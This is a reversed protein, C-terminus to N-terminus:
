SCGFDAGRSVEEWEAWEELRRRYAEPVMEAASRGLLLRLPPNDSALVALLAQAAKAPDGPQTFAHAGSHQDRRAALVQDYATMPAARELSTGNWDSRFPGPEVLTVKIGFGAVELALSESLGELAWKTANYAGSNPLAIVGGLSSIQFIHGSGRRRMHPLVAQTCWLAAFFNVDFVRRVSDEDLEEVAGVLGYGANNVLVDIGGFREVGEDVASLVARRDTVDLVVPMLKAGITAGM